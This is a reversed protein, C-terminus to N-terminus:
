MIVQPPVAAVQLTISALSIIEREAKRGEREREREERREGGGKRDRRGPGGERGRAKRVHCLPHM